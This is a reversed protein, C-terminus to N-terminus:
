RHDPGPGGPLPVLAEKLGTALDMNAGREFAAAYASDGAHARATRECEDRVARLEPTGRQPHGVTSWFAQGTGYVLGAREGEGGAALAAALLDLGLAIGFSDGIGQKGELMARAHEAAGPTDGSFLAILSLQYDLYARTWSEGRDVCGRRLTLARERAQALEGLGTLAFVQALHCRLSNPSDFPEGGAADLAHGALVDAALPRGTLLAILGGLYAAALTGESGYGRAWDLRAALMCEDGVRQATAYDGQLTAAFGLAWLGQTRDPGDTGHAALAQELYDRAEHLHGCCSWFFGVRGALRVARTPSVTLFHDVATCLDTHVEGITRYWYAQEPGLWQDHAECVVELFHEAHREAMAADEGLARLWSAGYERITDLMRYRLGSGRPGRVVTVVSAAVLGDLLPDVEGVGVPGGTCVARVAEADFDGRFVTLRAWLLRERPSCLEHSWGITTRMTRHREPRVRTSEGAKLVDFRSTLRGAIEEVSTRAAQAAALELALPIGELRRCIQAVTFGHPVPAAWQIGARQADARPGAAPDDDRRGVEDSHAPAQGFASHKGLESAAATAMRQTFLEVADPGEPSLPVVEIVHENAMDLPHRSTTLVTLGPAATLLDGLLARCSALLHECSDLVLLLRKDGLWECLADVPMRPTHDALDCADSVTALLLRDGALPSLEAWAVGHPFLEVAQRAARLALRSKGVGGSGVLTTLRHRALDRKLRSLERNRGVFSTSEEPLTGLM